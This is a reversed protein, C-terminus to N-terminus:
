IGEKVVEILDYLKGLIDEKTQDSRSAKEDQQERYGKRIRKWDRLRSHKRVSSEPVEYKEALEKLTKVKGTIYIKELFHWDREVEEEDLIMSYGTDNEQPRNDISIPYHSLELIDTDEVDLHEM